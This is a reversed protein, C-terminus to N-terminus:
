SNVISREFVDSIVTPVSSSIRRSSGAMMSAAPIGMSVAGSPVSFTLTSYKPSIMLGASLSGTMVMSRSLSKVGCPDVLPSGSGIDADDELVLEM